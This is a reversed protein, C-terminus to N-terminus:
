IINICLMYLMDQGSILTQKLSAVEVTNKMNVGNFGMQFGGPFRKSFFFFDPFAGFCFGTLSYSVSKKHIIVLFQVEHL